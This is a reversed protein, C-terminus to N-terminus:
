LDYYLREVHKFILLAGINNIFEIRVQTQAIDPRRKISKTKNCLGFPSPIPPMAALPLEINVLALLASAENFLAVHVIKIIKKDSAM